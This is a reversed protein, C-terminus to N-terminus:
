AKQILSTVCTRQGTAIEAILQMKYLASSEFPFLSFRPLTIGCIEEKDAEPLRPVANYDPVLDVLADIRCEKVFSFDTIGVGRIEVLGALSSEGTSFLTSDKANLRIRDDGVLIAKSGLIARLALDSKGSGSIGRILLGCLPAQWQIATAHCPYDGSLPSSM